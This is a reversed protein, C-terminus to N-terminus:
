QRDAGTVPDHAGRQSTTDQNPSRPHSETTPAILRSVADLRDSCVRYAREGKEVLAELEDLPMPGGRLRAVARELFRYATTYNATSRQTTM